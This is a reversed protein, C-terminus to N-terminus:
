FKAFELILWLVNCYYINMPIYKRMAKQTQVLKQTRVCLPAVYM